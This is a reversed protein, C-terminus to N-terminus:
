GFVISRKGALCRDEARPCFRADGRGDVRRSGLAALDPRRGLAMGTVSGWISSPGTWDDPLHNWGFNSGWLPKKGDGRRVMEERLLIWRSFNLKDSEVRRDYAGSNYGYPKAAAADFCDQGDLDYFAQLFRLDSLNSPGAEINPALAAAIVNSDSDVAHISEYAGCLMRVYHAPRPDAFGWHSRINPEDWIQYYTISNAYHDAVARTFNAYQEASAPPSFAGVALTSRAWAPTGDLVAVLELTEHADVAEVIADYADWEYLGDENPQINAWLFPQRVWTFGAAAIRDLEASLRGEESLYQTLEVNVGPLPLRYPLDLTDTANIWGRTRDNRRHRTVLMGALSGLILLICVGFLLWKQKIM